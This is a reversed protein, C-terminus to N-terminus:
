SSLLAYTYVKLDIKYHGNTRIELLTLVVKHIINMITFVYGVISLSIDTTNSVPSRGMTSSEQQSDTM